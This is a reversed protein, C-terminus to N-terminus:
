ANVEANDNGAAGTQAPKNLRNELKTCYNNYLIGMIIALIILGFGYVVALNLGLIIRTGMTKPSITNIVIFGAYIMSYIGFLILGIRSKVAAADDKDLKVAEGHLM